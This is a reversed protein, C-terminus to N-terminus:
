NPITKNQAREWVAAPVVSVVFFCAAILWFREGSMRWDALQIVLMLVPVIVASIAFALILVKQAKQWVVIGSLFIQQLSM